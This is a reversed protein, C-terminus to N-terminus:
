SRNRALVRRYAAARYHSPFRRVFARMEDVAQSVRVLSRLSEIRLSAHRASPTDIDIVQLHCHADGQCDRVRDDLAASSVRGPQSVDLDAAEEGHVRRTVSSPPANGFPAPAHPGGLPVLEMEWGIPPASVVPRLDAAPTILSPSMPPAPAPVMSAVVPAVSAVLAPPTQSRHQPVRDDGLLAQTLLMSGSTLLGGLFVGALLHWDRPLRRSTHGCAHCTAKPALTTRPHLVPVEASM